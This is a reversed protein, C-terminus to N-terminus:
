VSKRKNISAHFKLLAGDKIMDVTAQPNLRYGFYKAGSKGTITVHQVLDPNETRMESARASCEHSVFGWLDLENCYVEGMFKFVAIYEGPTEKWAKYLTYFIAEKQTIKKKTM